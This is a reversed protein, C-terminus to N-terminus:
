RGAGERPRAVRSRVATTARRGGSRVALGVRAAVADFNARILRDLEGRETYVAPVACHVRGDTLYNGAEDQAGRQHPRFVAISLGCKHRVVRFCPIDTEGDGIFVMNEFPIRRDRKDMLGNVGEKDTLDLAGKNIRFLYQTKTTYNVALAPWAAVGNHGFM